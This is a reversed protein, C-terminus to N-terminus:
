DVLRRLVGAVAERDAAAGLGRHLLRGDVAALVVAATENPAVVGHTDMWGGLRQRFGEILRAIERRLEEDRTAALYAEVFLLSRRDAGTHQDVSALLADVLDASKKTNDLFIDVGDIVQTLAGITAENLLARLSPFHYHVVSPTVGARDALVRTSVATWGREPILERAAALLRGRVEQGRVAAPSVM